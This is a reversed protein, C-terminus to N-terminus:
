SRESIIGFFAPVNELDIVRRELFGRAPQILSLFLPIIMSYFEFVPLKHTSSASTSHNQQATYYKLSKLHIRISEHIMQKELHSHSLVRSSWIAQQDETRPHYTEPSGPTVETETHKFM